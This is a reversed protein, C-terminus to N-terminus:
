LKLPFTKHLAATRGIIRNPPGILVKRCGNDDGSHSDGDSQVNLGCAIRVSKLDESPHVKIGLRVIVERKEEFTASDLNKARLKSLRNKFAELDAESTELPAIRKQLKRIELEAKAIVSEHENIRRQAEEISYVDREYGDRIKTIKGKAQSIKLEQLRVMKSANKDGSQKSALEVELWADDELLACAVDWVHDDWWTSSVFRSYSCPEKASPRFYRSCYYYTREERRKYRRVAMPRSCRPCFIRNRLLAQIAKGEKGRGRGRQSVVADAKQWLTESILKPVKFRIWEKEPKPRLLTRQIRATADGLPRNPNPVKANANYAHEGVYCHRHAIHSVRSMSWKGGEPAKIGMENLRAAVWYFTREESAVWQFIQVVVWAPSGEVPEGDPGVDNIEWWAAKIHARGDPGVEADRCYRYGYAAACAPVMGKLVRGINGARVNDRNTKLRLQQAQAMVMRSTQSAWDSGSPADGFVLEVGYYSCEREFISQQGADATLRGQLPILVGSIKCGAILDKRLHLMYKRDLYDSSEHDVFIYERPVVVGKDKAMRACTLLYEPIRNNKAQEERSQRTYAAWWIRQNLDCGDAGFSPYGAAQAAERVYEDLQERSVIENKNNQAM